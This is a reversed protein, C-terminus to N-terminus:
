GVPAERGHDSRRMQGSGAELRHSVRHLRLRARVADSAVGPRQVGAPPEGGGFLPRHNRCDDGRLHAVDCAPEGHRCVHVMAASAREVELPQSRRRRGQGADRFGVRLGTEPGDDEVVGSPRIGEGRREPGEVLDLDVM